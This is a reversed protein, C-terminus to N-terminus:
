ENEEINNFRLSKFSSLYVLTLTTFLPILEAYVRIETFYVVFIGIVFYPIITLNIYILNKNEFHKFKGTIFLLAAFIYLLGFNLLIIKITTFDFTIEKLIQINRRLCSEIDDGQNYRFIYSLAAKYAIFIVALIATNFIIKKTFVQRYNFLLYSFILYVASEKNLIAIIFIILTWKFNNKIIFYMGLTFLLIATFDYYQFTQNLLIYNWVIPYLIAPALFFNLIANKFYESILLYYIILLLYLVICSYVTFFIKSTVFSFPSFLKFILPILLRFQFPKITDFSAVASISNASNFDYISIIKQFYLFCVTLSLLSYVAHVALPIQKLRQIM